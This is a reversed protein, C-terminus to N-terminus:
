AVFICDRELFFSRIKPACRMGSIKLIRIRGFAAALMCQSFSGASFYSPRQQFPLFGSVATVRFRRFLKPM